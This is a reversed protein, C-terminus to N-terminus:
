LEKKALLYFGRYRARVKGEALCDIAKLFREDGIEKLQTKFREIIMINVAKELNM